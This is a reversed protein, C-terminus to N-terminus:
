RPGETVKPILPSARGQGRGASHGGGGGGRAATPQASRVQIMFPAAVIRTGSVARQAFCAERM